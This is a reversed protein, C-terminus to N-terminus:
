ELTINALENLVVSRGQGDDEERAEDMNAVHFIYIQRCEGCAFSEERGLVTSPENMKPVDINTVDKDGYWEGDQQRYEEIEIMVTLMTWAEDPKHLQYTHVTEEKIAWPM